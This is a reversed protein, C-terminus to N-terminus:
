EQAAQLGSVLQRHLPGVAPPPAVHHGARLHHVPTVHDQRGVGAVGSESEDGAVGEMREPRTTGEPVDHGREQGAVAVRRRAPAGRGRM